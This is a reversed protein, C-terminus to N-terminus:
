RVEDTCCPVNGDVRTWARSPTRLPVALFPARTMCFWKSALGCFALSGLGHQQEVVVSVFFVELIYQVDFYRM